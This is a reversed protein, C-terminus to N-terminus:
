FYVVSYKHLYAQWNAKQTSMCISLSQLLMESIKYGKRAEDAHVVAIPIIQFCFDLFHGVLLFWFVRITDTKCMNTKITHLTSSPYAREEGDQGGINCYSFELFVESITFLLWPRLYSWFAISFASSPRKDINYEVRSCCSKLLAPRVKKLGLIAQDIKSFHVFMNDDNM